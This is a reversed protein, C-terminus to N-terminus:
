DSIWAIGSTNIDDDVYNKITNFILFIFATVGAGTGLITGICGIGQLYIM